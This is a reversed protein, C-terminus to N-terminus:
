RVNATHRLRITHIAANLAVALEHSGGHDPHVDRILARYAAEAVALPADDAVHLVAYAGSSRPATRPPEQPPPVQQERVPEPYLQRYMKVVLTEIDRVEALRMWEVANALLHLNDIAREERHMTLTVSRRATRIWVDFHLVVKRQEVDYTVALKQREAKRKDAATTGLTKGYPWELTYSNAGSWKRFTEAIDAELQAWTKTKQTASM